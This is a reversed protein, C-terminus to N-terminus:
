DGSGVHLACSTLGSKAPCGMRWRLLFNAFSVVLLRGPVIGNIICVLEVSSIFLRCAHTDVRLENSCNRLRSDELRSIIVMTGLSSLVVVLIQAIESTRLHLCGIWAITKKSITLKAAFFVPKSMLSVVRCNMEYKLKYVKINIM